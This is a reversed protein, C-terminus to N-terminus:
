RKQNKTVVCHDPGYMIFLSTGPNIPFTEFAIDTPCYHQIYEMVQEYSDKVKFVDGVGLAFLKEYDEAVSDGSLVIKRKIEDSAM